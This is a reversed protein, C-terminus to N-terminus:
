EKINDVVLACTADGTINVATRIMDFLRDVGFLLPLGIVPINAALLVAVVLLSPGPVGAQGISGLTATVIIAIYQSMGLEVGFMQAFFM